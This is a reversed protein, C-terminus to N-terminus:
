IHRINCGGADGAQHFDVSDADFSTGPAYYFFIQQAMFKRLESTTKSSGLRQLFGQSQEPDVFMAAAYQRSDHPVRCEICVAEVEDTAYFRKTGYRQRLTRSVTAALASLRWAEAPSVKPNSM